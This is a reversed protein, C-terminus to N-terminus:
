VCGGFTKPILVRHIPANKGETSILFSCDSEITISECKPLNPIGIQGVQQWGPYAYVYVVSSGAVTFFAYKGNNTFTGDSIESVLGSAVQSGVGATPGAGFSVVKGTKTGVFVEGTQPHILLAEANAPGFPYRIVYSASSGIVYLRVSSRNSNNDGIDGLFVRGDPHARIAEPDTRNPSGVNFANVQKGTALSVMIVQPNNNEDNTLYVNGDAYQMGSIENLSSVMVTTVLGAAPPPPTIPTEPPPTEAEEPTTPPLAVAPTQTKVSLSPRVVPDLLLTRTPPQEQILKWSQGTVRAKQDRFTFAGFGIDASIIDGSQLTEPPVDELGILTATPTTIPDRRKTLEGRTQEDLTAPVTIDKFAVTAQFEPLLADEDVAVSFMQTAGEGAGVGFVRSAQDKADLQLGYQWAEINSRIRIGRDINQEDTFTIFTVWRAPNEYFTHTLKWRVGNITEALERLADGLNKYDSALWSRVRLQSSTEAVPLLPISGLASVAITLLEKAIVTQSLGDGPAEPSVYGPTSYAIGEDPNVLLRHFPFEDITKLGLSTAGAGSASVKEIYGGFRGVRTGDSAIESIYLGTTHPWTDFASPDLTDVLLSGDGTLTYNDDFDATLPQLVAKVVGTHLHTAEVRWGEGCDFCVM